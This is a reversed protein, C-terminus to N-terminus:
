FQRKSLSSACEQERRMLSINIYLFFQWFSRKRALSVFCICSQVCVIGFGFAVVERVKGCIASERNYAIMREIQENGRVGVGDDVSSPLLRGNQELLVVISPRGRNM